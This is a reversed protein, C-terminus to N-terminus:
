FADFREEVKGGMLLKNYDSFSSYVNNYFIYPFAKDANNWMM